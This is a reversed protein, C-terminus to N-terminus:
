LEFAKITLSIIGWVFMQGAFTLASIAIFGETDRDCMFWGLALSIIIISLLM